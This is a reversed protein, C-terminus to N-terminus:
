TPLGWFEMVKYTDGMSAMDQYYIGDDIAHLIGGNYYIGAHHVGTRRNRGLFVVCLDVPADLQVFGFKDKEFRQNFTGSLAVVSSNVTKFRNVTAGLEERVVDAVLLWCPPSEYERSLYKNVDM